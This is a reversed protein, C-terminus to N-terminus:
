PTTAAAASRSRAAPGSRRVSNHIKWPPSSSASSAAVRCNPEVWLRGSHSEVISRLHQPGDGDRRKEHHLLARLSPDRNGASGPGQDAVSFEIQDGRRAVSLVLARPSSDKMADVGNKLLNILVQEILIPDVNLIPLDAEVRTIIPVRQRKAAIEALGVADSLIAEVTTRRREPDSRKVFDRIRRIV